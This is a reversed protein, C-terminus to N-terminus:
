HYYAMPRDPKTSSTFSFEIVFKGVWQGFVGLTVSIFLRRRNGKTKFMDIYGTSKKAHQELTITEEIEGM